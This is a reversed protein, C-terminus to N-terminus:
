EEKGYIRTDPCKDTRRLECDACAVAIQESTPRPEDDNRDCPEESNMGDGVIEGYGARRLEQAAGEGLGALGEVAIASVKRQGDLVNYDVVVAQCCEVLHDVYVGCVLGGKVEVIINLM